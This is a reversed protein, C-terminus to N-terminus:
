SRTETERPLWTEHVHIWEVRNPAEAKERFVATSQRATTEGDRTQWEEYTVIIIGPAPTREELNEIRIEFEHGELSGELDRMWALLEPQNMRSGGPSVIEFEEAMVNEFRSFEGGPGTM